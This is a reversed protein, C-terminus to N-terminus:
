RPKSSPNIQQSTSVCIKERKSIEQPIEYQQKESKMNLVVQFITERGMWKSVGSLFYIPNKLLCKLDMTYNVILMIHKIADKECIYIPFEKTKLM